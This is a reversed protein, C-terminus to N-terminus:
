LPASFVAQTLANLARELSDGKGERQTPGYSFRLVHDAGAMSHEIKAPAKEVIVFAGEALVDRAADGLSAEVPLPLGTNALAAPTRDYVQYALSRYTSSEPSVLGLQLLMLKVRLADDHPSRLAALAQDILTRAENGEGHSLM